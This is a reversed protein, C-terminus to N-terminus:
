NLGVEMPSIDRTIGDPGKAKVNSIFFSKGPKLQKFREKQRPSFHAGNSNEPMANGMSDFFVTTFSLVTYTVNLIDDDIAAGLGDAAMLAAKSIRKPTGKYHITGEAGRLAIYPTPDPLKRVRFKMSGVNQSRGDIQASVSIEAETGVKSARAIWSDGRRTLTGNSMTAQVANMPVGPVSISIPNDIGAYLVNMMTPSITAMPEIVTYASSFNRREISGDPKPVEIYGSYQHLGSGGAVLDLRGNPVLAGNVFIRPRQTTDIAALVIQAQYRGGRMVMNSNPIVYADLSNVRIDGIDINNILNSMAESEAQRIDNQIKTLLTVAAVAPMNEFSKQEWSTPGVTGPVKRVDFNLMNIIAQRKASDPILSAVYDRYAELQLRLKQGRPNAPNLMIAASAELDDNNVLNNYDGTPGDAKQAILTKLSDISQYLLNSRDHLAVGKEYWPGAKAPNQAYLDKLYQFQIENKQSISLNTRNLSEQVQSFGNLVDSSVNLALMATLVIYMLNIMRQRPSMRTVNNGGAM